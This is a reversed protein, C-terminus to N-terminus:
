TTFSLSTCTQIPVTDSGIELWRFRLLETRLLRPNVSSFWVVEDLARQASKLAPSTVPLTSTIAASVM